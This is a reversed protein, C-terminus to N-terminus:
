FMLGYEQNFLKESGLNLIEKTKWEDDRGPIQWWYIRTTIFSNKGQEADSFFQNFHNFGNLRSQIFIKSNKNSIISPFVNTVMKESLYAFDMLFYSSTKGIGAEDSNVEYSLIKITNENDFNIITNSYKKVGPKLFFPLQAYCKQIKKMLEKSNCTNHGLIFFNQNLSFMSSWLILLMIITSLGSNRSNMVINFKNTIFKEVLEKQYNRLKINMYGNNTIVPCYTEIFYIPDNVCRSYELKEENTMSFILDHKKFGIINRYFISKTQKYDLNSKIVNIDNSNFCKM